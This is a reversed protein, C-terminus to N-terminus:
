ESQTPPQVDSRKEFGLCRVIPIPPYRMFRDDEDARACRYFVAGRKTDQARIHVCRGCLGIAGRNPKSEAQSNGGSDDM